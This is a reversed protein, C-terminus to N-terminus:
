QNQSPETVPRPVVKDGTVVKDSTVAKDDTVWQEYDKNFM